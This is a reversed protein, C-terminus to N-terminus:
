PLIILDANDNEHHVLYCLVWELASTLVPEALLPSSEKISQRVADTYFPSEKTKKILATIIATRAPHTYQNAIVFIGRCKMIYEGRTMATATGDVSIHETSLPGHDVISEIIKLLYMGDSLAPKGVLQRMWACWASRQSAEVAFAQLHRNEHGIFSIFHSLANTGDYGLAAPSLTTQSPAFPNGNLDMTSLTEILAPSIACAGGDATNITLSTIANLVDIALDKTEALKNYRQMHVWIKDKTFPLANTVAQRAAISFIHPTNTLTSEAAERHRATATPETPPVAGVLSNSLLLSGIVSWAGWVNLHM